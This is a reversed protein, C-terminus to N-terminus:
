RALRLLLRRVADQDWDAAGRHAVVIRGRGDLIYTTPLARLGFAGPMRQDEVAAPLRYGHRRLFSRVRAVPEPSVILLEVGEGELSAALRELSALEAVCPACWTAWMNLVLPTGRYRELSFVEDELDRLSWDYDAEIAASQAGVGGSVLLLLAALQLGARIAVRRRM